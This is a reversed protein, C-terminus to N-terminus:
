AASKRYREIEHEVADEVFRRLDIRRSTAGGLDAIRQMLVANVHVPVTRGPEPLTVEVPFLGVWDGREDGDEEDAYLWASVDAVKHDRPSPIPDGSDVAVELWGELADKGMALAEELTEGCTACGGADLFIITFGATERLVAGMYTATTM